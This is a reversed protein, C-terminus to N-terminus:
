LFRGDYEPLNKVPICDKEAKPELDTQLSGDPTDRRYIRGGGRINMAPDEDFYNFPRIFLSSAHGVTEQTPVDEAIPIHIGGMSLWIVIDQKDINDGDLYDDITVPCLLPNAQCFHPSNIYNENDKQKTVAIQYKTYAGGISREDDGIVSKIPSNTNIKYGKRSGWKNFKTPNTVVHTTPREFNMKLGGKDDSTIDEKTIKKQTIPKDFYPFQITEKDIHLAQLTNETGAIDLDIKYGVIHEHLSGVTYEQVRTGYGDEKFNDASYFIAQLYGGLAMKAEVMGNPYFIYDYIYDYNYIPSSTRVVLAYGASSASSTFSNVFDSDYHRRTPWALDQEFICISNRITVPNAGNYFTFNFYEANYPCDSGAVLEFLSTGLGWSSDLYVTSAIQFILESKM